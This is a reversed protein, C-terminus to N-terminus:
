LKQVRIIQLYSYKHLFSWYRYIWRDVRSLIESIKVNQKFLYPSMLRFFMFEPYYLSVSDFRQKLIEIERPEFPYEERDGYKPVGFKGVVFTRFFILVPNRSNNEFFVGRGGKKLMSFLIEAFEDFPEIHHLIFKGAVIDFSKCLNILEMANFRYAEVLSDVRNMKALVLTNKVAQPSTDIATVRAGLQALYVSLLGNGCGIDLVDKRHVEGILNLFERNSRTANERFAVPDLQFPEFETWTRNWFDETMRQSIM